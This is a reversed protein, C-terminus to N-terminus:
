LMLETASDISRVLPTDYKGMKPGEDFRVEFDTPGGLSLTARQTSSPLVSGSPTPDFDDPKTAVLYINEGDEDIKYVKGGAQIAQYAMKTDDIFKQRSWMQEGTRSNKWTGDNSTYSNALYVTGRSPQTEGIYRGNLYVSKGEDYSMLRRRAPGQPRFEYDDRASNYTIRWEEQQPVRENITFPDFFGGSHGVPDAGEDHALVEFQPIGLNTAEDAAVEDDEINTTQSVFNFGRFYGEYPGSDFLQMLRYPSVEQLHQKLTDPVPGATTIWVRFEIPFYENEDGGMRKPYFYVHDVQYRHFSVEGFGMEFPSQGVWEPDLGWVSLEQQARADSVASSFTLPSYDLLGTPEYALNAQPEDTGAM